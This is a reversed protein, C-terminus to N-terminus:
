KTLDLFSDCKDLCIILKKVTAAKVTKTYSMKKVEELSSNKTHDLLSHVRGFNAYTIFRYPVNARAM